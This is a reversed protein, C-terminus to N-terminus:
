NNRRIKFGDNRLIYSNDNKLVSLSQRDLAADLGHLWVEIYSYGKNPGGRAIAFPNDPVEAVVTNEALVPYGETDAMDQPIKETLPATLDNFKTIVNTDQSDRDNPRAGANATIDARVTTCSAPAYGPYTVPPTTAKVNFGARDDVASTLWADDSPDAVDADCVDEFYIQTGAAVGLQVRLPEAISRADNGKVYLNGALTVLQPTQTASNGSFGVNIAEQGYNTTASNVIALHVGSNVAPNRIWNSSFLSRIISVNKTDIGLLMGSSHDPEPHGANRLGESIISQWITIDVPRIKLFNLDITGDLAWSCSTNAIVINYVEGTNGQDVINICDREGFSPAGAADGVRGRYHHLLINNTQISLTANQVSLGPSPCTQLALTMYPNTVAIVGNQVITGSVDCVIITPGTSDELVSKLSGSGSNALTTIHVVTGGERNPGMGATTTTGFGSIGPIIPLAQVSVAQAVGRREGQMSASESLSSVTFLVTLLCLASFKIKM